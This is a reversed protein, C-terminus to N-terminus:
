EGQYESGGPQRLMYRHFNGLYEKGDAGHHVIDMDPILWIDGGCDAWNRSFAYDEGYWLGNHAGHNFLDVFLRYKPGYCLEPYTNMFKNVGEKTIKMFGAPIWDAKICGDERVIPKNNEDSQVTGMYKEEDMKFRYTCAVVDGETDILKRLADPEFSLDHDLFVVIDPEEDMAKRLLNSRAQSIYPNGIEFVINHDIGDLYQVSREMADIFQQYPRTITPVCFIVKM